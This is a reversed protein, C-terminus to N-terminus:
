RYITQLGSAAKELNKPEIKQASISATLGLIRPCNVCSDYNNMITAYPDDGTAHHCEDFILLNVQHLASFSKEKDFFCLLIFCKIKCFLNHSLLNLFTQATFILVHNNEFEKNWGNRDQQKIKSPGCHVKIKLDLHKNM